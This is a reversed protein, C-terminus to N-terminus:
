KRHGLVHGEKCRPGAGFNVRPKQNYAHRVRGGIRDLWGLAAMPALEFGVRGDSQLVRFGPTRSVTEGLGYYLRSRDTNGSHEGFMRGVQTITDDSKYHLFPQPFRTGWSTVNATPRDTIALKYKMESDDDNITTVTSSITSTQAVCDGTVRATKPAVHRTAATTTKSRTEPSQIIGDHSNAIVTPVIATENNTRM